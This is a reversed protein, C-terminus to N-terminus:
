KAVLSHLYVNSLKHIGQKLFREQIRNVKLPYNYMEFLHALYTNTLLNVNTLVNVYICM